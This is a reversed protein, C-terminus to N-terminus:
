VYSGLEDLAQAVTKLLIKKGAKMLLKGDCGQVRGQVKDKLYGLMVSKNNGICNALGLYHNNEEVEAFRLM